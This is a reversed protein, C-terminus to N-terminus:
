KGSKARKHRVISKKAKQKTRKTQLVKLEKSYKNVTYNKGEKLEKAGRFSGRANGEAMEKKYKVDKIQQGLTKRKSVKKKPM